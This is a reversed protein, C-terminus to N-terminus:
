MAASFSSFGPSHWGGDCSLTEFSNDGGVGADAPDIAVGADKGVAADVDM